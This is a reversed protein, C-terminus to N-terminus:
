ASQSKKRVLRFGLFDISTIGQQGRGHGFGVELLDGVVGTPAGITSPNEKGTIPVYEVIDKVERKNLGLEEHLKESLDAKTLAAM